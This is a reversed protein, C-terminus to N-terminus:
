PVARWVTCARAGAEAAAALARPGAAPEWGGAAFGAALAGMFADGAGLTSAVEVEVALQDAECAGRAVAGEAGRTVVAIRAGRRALGAAAAAPDGEGTLWEAEARNARVCFARDCVELCLRRALDLDSWRHARLNPDFLVPLGRELALERAHLTLEREAEGVLTNSGFVLATSAGVAEALRPEISGLTAAIGEGYVQFAAERREDFTILALPTRVGAVLSFWELSVGEGALGESLWRGWPDDGAGGALAAEAGGRSAAVAVNALAGGFRPVFSDAAAPSPLERECVLDVIAEGLCLISM